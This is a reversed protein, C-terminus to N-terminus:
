SLPFLHHSLPLFFCKCIDWTQVWLENCSISIMISCWLDHKWVLNNSMVTFVHGSKYSCVCINLPLSLSLLFLLSLVFFNSSSPSFFCFFCYLSISSATLLSLSFCLLWSPTSVPTLVISSSSVPQTLIETIIWTLWDGLSRVHRETGEDEDEDRVKM